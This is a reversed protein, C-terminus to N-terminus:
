GRSTHSSESLNGRHLSESSLRLSESSMWLPLRHRLPWLARSPRIAPERTYPSCVATPIDTSLGSAVDSHNSRCLDCASHSPRCGPSCVATPIDVGTQPMNPRTKQNGTPAQRCRPGERGDGRSRKLPAMLGAAEQTYRSRRTPPRRLKTLTPLSKSTPAAHRPAHYAGRAAEGNSCQEAAMARRAAALLHAKFPRM